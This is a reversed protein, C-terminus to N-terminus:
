RDDVHRDAGDNRVGAIWSLMGPLLKARDGPANFLEAEGGGDADIALVFDNETVAPELRRSQAAVFIHRDHSEFV